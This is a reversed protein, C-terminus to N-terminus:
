LLIIRNKSQLTENFRDIQNNAAAAAAEDIRCCHQILM